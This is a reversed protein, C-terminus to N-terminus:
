NIRNSKEGNKREFTAKIRGKIHKGAEVVVESNTSGWLYVKGQEDTM